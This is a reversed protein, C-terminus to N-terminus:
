RPRFPLRAPWMYGLFMGTVYNAGGVGAPATTTVKYRIIMQESLLIGGPVEWPGDAFSGLQTTISAFDPPSFGVTAALPRNIDIVWVV